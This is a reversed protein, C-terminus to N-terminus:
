KLMNIKISQNFSINIKHLSVNIKFNIKHFYNLVRLQRDGEPHAFIVLLLVIVSKLM